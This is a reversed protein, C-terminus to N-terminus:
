LGFLRLFDNALAWVMILVIMVLGVQSLRIRQEVSLAKGRIGEIALFVLQGGDLIPIPLLNLIALNISFLAMFDLFAVLGVRAVQDTIQYILIPGGVDRPSAAGTFLGALFELILRTIRVVQEVGHGAAALPGLRERPPEAVAVGIRGVPRDAEAEHPEPTVTLHVQRGEREVVMDVAVGPRAQLVTVLDQWDHIPQGDARVVRDGVRMGAEAAPSGDTVQAVVPPIEIRPQLSMILDSRQADRGPVPVTVAPAGAFELRITDRAMAMYQYVENFDQVPQSNVATIRAGAPIDLLAVAEAPVLDEAVNGV